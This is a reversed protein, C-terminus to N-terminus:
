HSVENLRLMEKECKKRSSLIARISIDSILYRNVIFLTLMGRMFYSKSSVKLLAFYNGYLTCITFLQFFFFSLFFM